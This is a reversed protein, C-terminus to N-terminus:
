TLAEGARAVEQDPAPPDHRYPLQPSPPLEALRPVLRPHEFLFLVNQVVSNRVGAMEYRGAVCIRRAKGDHATRVPAEEYTGQHRLAGVEKASRHAGYRQEVHEPVM